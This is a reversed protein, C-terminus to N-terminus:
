RNRGEFRGRRGVFHLVFFGEGVVDGVGEELEHHLGQLTVKLVHDGSTIAESILLTRRSCGLLKLLSERPNLEELLLSNLSIEESNLLVYVFHDFLDLHVPILEHLFNVLWDHPVRQLREEAHLVRLNSGILVELGRHRWNQRKIQIQLQLLSAFLAAIAGGVVAPEVEVDGVFLEEVIAHVLVEQSFALVNMILHEEIANVIAQLLESRM